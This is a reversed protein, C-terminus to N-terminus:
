IFFIFNFLPIVKTNNIIVITTNNIVSNNLELHSGTSIFVGLLGGSNRNMIQLSFELEAESSSNLSPTTTNGYICLDNIVLTSNSLLSMNKTEAWTGPIYQTVYYYFIASQQNAIKYGNVPSLNGCSEISSYPLNKGDITFLNGSVVYNENLDVPSLRLYINGSYKKIAEYNNPNSLMLQFYIEDIYSESGINVLSGDRATSYQAFPNDAKYFEDTYRQADTVTPTINAHLNIGNRFDVSTNGYVTRLVEHTYVNARNNLEFEFEIPKIAGDSLLKPAVYIDKISIVAKYKGSLSSNFEWAFKSTYVGMQENPVLVWETGNYQYFEYQIFDSINHYNIKEGGSTKVDLIFEFGNNDYNATKTGVTYNPNAVGIQYVTAEENLFLGKGAKASVYNSLEKGLSFSAVFPLVKAFYVRSETPNVKFYFNGQNNTTKFVSKNGSIGTEVSVTNAYVSSDVANGDVDTLVFNTNSFDYTMNTYFYFTTLDTTEDTGRYYYDGSGDVALNNQDMSLLYEFSQDAFTSSLVKYINGTSKDTVTVIAKIKFYYKGPVNYTGPQLFHYFAQDKVSDILVM